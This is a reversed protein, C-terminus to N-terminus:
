WRARALHAWRWGWDGLTWGELPLCLLGVVAFGLALAVVARNPIRM